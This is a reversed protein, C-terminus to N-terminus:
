GARGPSAPRTARGLAAVAGTRTHVGLKEYANELHKRVTGPSIWLLTAVEANRKGEAVLEVIEHERPTLLAAGGDPTSSSRRRRAANRLFQKLHPLILDLVARDREQFDSTARDFELRAGSAGSSDLWLRAMYEVGLPRMVEQYLELRRLERRSLFDSYMHTGDVPTMPDQHCWRKQAEAVHRTKDGRPEGTFAVAPLGRSLRRHYAVVDCPVLRRLADLVPGPFPIPGDIAEAEHLVDLVSRYDSESLRPM